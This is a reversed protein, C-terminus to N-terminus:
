KDKKGFVSFHVYRKPHAKLNVLLSDVDRMTSNLNNYLQPDRMLLGLSGQSSNLQATLQKVNDLTADVRAMTAAVDLDSLNNTLKSANDLVGDAKTLLGPMQKNMQTVLRTLEGSTTILNGSVKEVHHLSNAIAPDALLESLSSAISDLKPLIKEVAPIMNKLQGMAGSNTDGPIVDGPKLHGTGDSKVILNM